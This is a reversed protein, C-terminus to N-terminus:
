YIAKKCSYCVRITSTESQNTRHLAPYAFVYEDTLELIPHLAYGATTKHEAVM